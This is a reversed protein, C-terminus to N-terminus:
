FDSKNSKYVLSLTHVVNIRQSKKIKFSKRWNTDDIHWSKSTNCPKKQFSSSLYTVVLFNNMGHIWQISFQFTLPYGNPCAHIQFLLWYTNKRFCFSYLHTVIFKYCPWVFNKTPLRCHVPRKGLRLLWRSLRQRMWPLCGQIWVEARWESVPWM